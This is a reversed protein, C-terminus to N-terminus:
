AISVGSHLGFFAQRGEPSQFMLCHDHHVGHVVLRHHVPRGFIHQLSAMFHQSRQRRSLGQLNARCNGSEEVDLEGALYVVDRRAYRQLMADTGGADLIAQDKYPAMLPNTNNSKTRSLGWEWEDYDPCRDMEHQTPLTFTGHRFRRQDLFCFSRPNAVVTRVRLRSSSSSGHNGKDVVVDLVPSNSLLAWRQTYQGGASHGAVVVRRLRPFRVRDDNLQQLLRDVVAYASFNASHHHTNIADSGYRWTHAIPGSEAWELATANPVNQSVLQVPPDLPTRLWPAIVMISSTEAKQDKQPLASNTCCLYDDANRSSGHITIVVTEVKAHWSLIEADTSEDIAGMTSYYAIQPESPDADASTPLGYVETLAKRPVSCLRYRPLVPPHESGVPTVLECCPLNTTNTFSCKYGQGCGSTGAIVDDACCDGAIDSKASGTICTSTGLSTPCCTDLSPCLSGDSCQTSGLSSQPLLLRLLLTLLPILQVLRANITMIVTYAFGSFTFPTTRLFISRILLIRTKLQPIKSNNKTGYYVILLLAPQLTRGM